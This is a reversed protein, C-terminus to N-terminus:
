PDRPRHSLPWLLPRCPTDHAPRQGWLTSPHTFQISTECNQVNTHTDGMKGGKQM